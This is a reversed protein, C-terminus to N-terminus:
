RNRPRLLYDISHCIRAADQTHGISSEPSILLEGCVPRQVASDDDLALADCSRIASMARILPAGDTTRRDLRAIPERAPFFTVRPVISFTQM